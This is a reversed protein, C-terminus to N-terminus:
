VQCICCPELEAPSETSVPVHKQQKMLKLITEGSLGTSVDGIREELALLEQYELRKM